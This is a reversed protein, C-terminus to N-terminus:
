KTNEVKKRQVVVNIFDRSLMFVRTRVSTYYHTRGSLEKTGLSILLRVWSKYVCTVPPWLQSQTVPLSQFMMVRWLTKWTVELSLRGRKCKFVYMSTWFIENVTMIKTVTLHKYDNTTTTKNQKRRQNRAKNQKPNPNKTQKNAQKNNNKNNPTPM